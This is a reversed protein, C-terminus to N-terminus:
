IYTAFAILNTGDLTGTGITTSLQVVCGAACRVGYLGLDVEFVQHENQKHVAEVIAIPTIAGGGNVAAASDIVQIYYTGNAANSQIQAHVHVISCPTASVVLHTAFAKLVAAKLPPYTVLSTLM